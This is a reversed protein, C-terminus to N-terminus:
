ASAERSAQLVPEWKKWFEPFSKNTVSPDDPRVDMGM